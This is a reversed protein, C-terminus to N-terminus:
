QIISIFLPLIMSIALLICIVAAVTKRTRARM